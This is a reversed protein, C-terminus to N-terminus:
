VTLEDRRDLENKCIAAWEYMEEDVFFFMLEEILALTMRNYPELKLLRKYEKLTFYESITYIDLHLIEEFKQHQAIMEM